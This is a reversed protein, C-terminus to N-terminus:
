SLDLEDIPLFVDDEDPIRIRVRKPGAGIRHEFRVGKRAIEQGGQEPQAIVLDLVVLEETILDAHLEPVHGGTCECEATVRLRRSVEGPGPVRHAVAEWHTCKCLM